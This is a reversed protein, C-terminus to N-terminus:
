AHEVVVRSDLLHSQKRGLVLGGLVRGLFREELTREGLRHAKYQCGRKGVAAPGLDIGQAGAGGIGVHGGVVVVGHHAHHHHDLVHHVLLSGKIGVEKGAAVQGVQTRGQVLRNGERELRLDHVAALGRHPTSLV